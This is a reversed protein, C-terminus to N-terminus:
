LLSSILFDSHKKQDVDLVGFVAQLFL